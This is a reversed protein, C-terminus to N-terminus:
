QIIVACKRTYTLGHALWTYSKFYCLEFDFGFIYATSFYYYYIDPSDCFLLPECRKKLYYQFFLTSDLIRLIYGIKGLSAALDTLIIRALETIVRKNMFALLKNQELM